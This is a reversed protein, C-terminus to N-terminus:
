FLCLSIWLYGFSAQIYVWLKAWFAKYNSLFSVSHTKTFKKNEYKVQSEQKSLLLYPIKKHRWWEYQCKLGRSRLKSCFYSVAKMTCGSHSCLVYETNIDIEIIALLYFFDPCHPFTTTSFPIIIRYPQEMTPTPEMIWCKPWSYMLLVKVTHVMSSCYQQISKLSWGIFGTGKWPWFNM